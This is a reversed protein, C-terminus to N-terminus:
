VSSFLNKVEKKIYAITSPSFSFGYNQSISKDSKVRKEMVMEILVVVLTIIEKLYSRYANDYKENEVLFALYSNNCSNLLITYILSQQKINKYKYIEFIKRILLSRLKNPFYKVKGNSEDISISSFSYQSRWKNFDTGKEEKLYKTIFNSIAEPNPLPDLIDYFELFECIINRSGLEKYLRTLLEGLEKSYQCRLYDMSKDIVRDFESDTLRLNYELAISYLFESYEKSFKRDAKRPFKFKIKKEILKSIESNELILFWTGYYKRRYELKKPQILDLFKRVDKKASVAVSHSYYYKNYRTDFVKSHLLSGTSIGLINCMRKFSEVLPKSASVFSIRFCRFSKNISITGDTDILGKLCRMIFSNDTFIWSPIDLQNKVKDGPTFGLDILAKQYSLKNLRILSLKTNDYTDITIDELNIGFMQGLFNIVYNLYEPDDVGNLSINVENSKDSVHGDGSFIGILEATDGNKLLIIEKSKGIIRTHPIPHEYHIELKKFAVEPITNGRYL